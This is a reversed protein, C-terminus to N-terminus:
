PSKYYYFKWEFATEKTSNLRQNEVFDDVQITM